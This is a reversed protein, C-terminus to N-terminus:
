FHTYKRMNIYRTFSVYVTYIWEPTWHLACLACIYCMWKLSVSLVTNFMNSIRQMWRWYCVAWSYQYMKWILTLTMSFQIVVSCDTHANRHSYLIGFANFSIFVIVINWEFTFKWVNKVFDLEIAYETYMHGDRTGIPCSWRRWCCVTWKDSFGWIGFM